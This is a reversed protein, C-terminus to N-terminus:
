RPLEKINLKMILQNKSQTGTAKNKSYYLYNKSQYTTLVYKNLLIILQNRLHDAEKKQNLILSKSFAPQKSPTLLLELQLMMQKNQFYNSDKSNKLNLLTPVPPQIISQINNTKSSHYTQQNIIVGLSSEKVEMLQNPNEQYQTLTNTQHNNIINTKQIAIKSYTKTKNM